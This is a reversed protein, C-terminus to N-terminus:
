LTPDPHTLPVSTTRRVNEANEPFLPTARGGIRQDLEGTVALLTDRWEEFTLRRTNMRWLLRNEPDIEVARQLEDSDASQISCQQYALIDATVSYRRRSPTPPNHSVQLSQFHQWM